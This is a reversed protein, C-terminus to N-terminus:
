SHFILLPVDTEYLMKKTASPSFLQRLLTRRRRTMAILDFNREKLYEDISQVFNSGTIVDYDIKLNRYTTHTYEKLKKIREQEDKNLNKSAHHHVAIIQTKFPTIIRILRHLSFFDRDNLEMLFLVKGIKHHDVTSNAPVALVPAVAKNVVDGTISGMAQKIAGEKKSTGMIIVESKMTKSIKPILDEPYGFEFRYQVRITKHHKSDELVKQTLQRLRERYSQELSEIEATKSTAIPEDSESKDRSLYDSFCYLLTIESQFKEALKLAYSLANLSYDSFSVPVLIKIM